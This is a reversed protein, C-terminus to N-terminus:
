LSRATSDQLADALGSLIRELVDMRQEVRESLEEVRAEVAAVAKASADPASKPAAGVDDHSARASPPPAPADLLATPDLEVSRAMSASITSTGLDLRECTTGTWGPDCVCRRAICDGALSCDSANSCAMAGPGLLFVCGPTFVPSNEFSDRM